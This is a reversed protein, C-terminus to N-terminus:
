GRRTGRRAGRTQETEQDGDSQSLGQGGMGRALIVDEEVEPGVGDIAPEFDM